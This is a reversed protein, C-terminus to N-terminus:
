TTSLIEWREDKLELRGRNRMDELASYIRQREKATDGGYLEMALAGYDIAGRNKKIHALIRHRVVSAGKPEGRPPGANATWGLRDLIPYMDYTQLYRYFTRLSIGMEKAAAARDGDHKFLAEFMLKQGTEKPLKM